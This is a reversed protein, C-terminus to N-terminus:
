MARVSIVLRISSQKLIDSVKGMSYVYCDRFRKEERDEGEGARKKSLWIRTAEPIPM